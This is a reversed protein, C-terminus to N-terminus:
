WLAPVVYINAFSRILLIIVIDLFTAIKVIGKSQQKNRRERKPACM